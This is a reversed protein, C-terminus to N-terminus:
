VFFREMWSARNKFWNSMVVRIRLSTDEVCGWSRVVKAKSDRRFRAFRYGVHLRVPTKVVFGISRFESARAPYGQNPAELVTQSQISGTFSWRHM